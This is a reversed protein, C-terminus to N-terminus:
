WPQSGEKLVAAVEQRFGEGEGVHAYIPIGDVVAQAGPWDGAAPDRWADVMLVEHKPSLERIVAAMRNAFVYSWQCHPTYFVLARGIPLLRRRPRDGTQSAAKPGSPPEYTGQVERYMEFSGEPGRSFGYRGYLEAMSLGEGTEFVPARIFRVRRGAVSKLKGSRVEDLFSRLLSSALGRRRDESSGTFVCYLVVVDRRGPAQPGADEPYFMLQAAPKGDLYALKAIPGNARTVETLWERKIQVGEAHVPDKLQGKSCVSILDDFLDPTVDRVVVGRREEASRSASM